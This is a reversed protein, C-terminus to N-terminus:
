FSIVGFRTTIEQYYVNPTANGERRQVPDIHKNTHRSQPHVSYVAAKRRGTWRNLWKSGVQLRFGRQECMIRDVRVSHPRVYFCLPASWSIPPTLTHLCLTALSWPVATWLYISGHACYGCIKPGFGAQSAKWVLGTQEDNRRKKNWLVSRKWRWEILLTWSWLFVSIKRFPYKRGWNLFIYIYRRVIVALAWVTLKKEVPSM